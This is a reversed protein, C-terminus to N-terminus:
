SPLSEEAALWHRGLRRAALSVEQPDLEAVLAALPQNWHPYPPPIRGACQAALWNSQNVKAALAQDVRPEAGRVAAVDERRGTALAGAAAALLVADEVTRGETPSKM